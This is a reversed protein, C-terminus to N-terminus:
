KETLLKEYACITSKAIKDWSFSNKIVDAAAKSKNKLERETVASEIAEAISDVTGECSWGANNKEVMDALTTGTTVVCPVGYSLAELIGMPMGEFRSTQLFVDTALLISEKEKSVVAGNARVIDELRKEKIMNRIRDLSGGVDPGYIAFSAKVRRLLESKKSIAEIMLDLGKHYIDLRGIYTFRMYDNFVSKKLRPMEIGNTGIFKNNGLRTSKLEYESLCQIAASNKIFARFLSANAVTKKIWKKKQAQRTLCGHPVIVYPISNRQLEKSIGLFKPRYVEHFVVIDPSSFPLPLDNISFGKSYNFQNLMDKVPINTLNVFGVEAIKQQAKIHQPVVVCVGSCSDDTIEAIHLIVM